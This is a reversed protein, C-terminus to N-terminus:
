LGRGEMHGIDAVLARSAPTRYRHTLEMRALVCKGRNDFAAQGLAVRQHHRFDGAQLAGLHGRLQHRQAMRQRQFQHPRAAHRHGRALHDPDIAFARGFRAGADLHFGQGADIGGQEREVVQGLRHLRRQHDAAHTQQELFAALFAQPQM